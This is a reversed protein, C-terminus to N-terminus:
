DRRLATMPDVRSARVAPLWVAILSVLSLLAIAGIATASDQPKLGYLLSSALRAAGLALPVGAALGGLVTWASEVLFMTVIGKREAGVAIRIGIERTRRVVSFALVGYLGIASLVLAVGGISESLFALM